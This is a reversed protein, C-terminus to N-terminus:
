HNKEEFWEEFIQKQLKHWDKSCNECLDIEDKYLFCYHDIKNMDKFTKKCKDCVHM